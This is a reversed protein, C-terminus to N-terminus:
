MDSAKTKDKEKFWKNVLPRYFYSINLRDITDGVSQATIYSIGNDWEMVKCDIRRGFGNTKITTSSKKPRGYKLKIANTLDSFSNANTTLTICKVKDDYEGINVTVENEGVMTDYATSTAETPAKSPNYTYHGEAQDPLESILMGLKVNQFAYPEPKPKAGFLPCACLTLSLLIQKLM